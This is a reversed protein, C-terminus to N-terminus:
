PELSSRLLAMKGLAGVACFTLQQQQKICSDRFSHAAYVGNDARISKIQINYKASWTEFEHKSQLLM